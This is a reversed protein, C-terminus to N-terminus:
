PLAERKRRSPAGIEARAPEQPTVSTDAANCSPHSIAPTTCHLWDAGPDVTLRLVAQKNGFNKNPLSRNDRPMAAEKKLCSQL